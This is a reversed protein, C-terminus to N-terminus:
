DSYFKDQLKIQDIIFIILAELTNQDYKVALKLIVPANQCKGIMEEHFERLRGHFGCLTEISFDLNPLRTQKECIQEQLADIFLKFERERLEWDMSPEWILLPQLQAVESSDSNATERSEESDRTAKQSVAAPVSAQFNPSIRQNISKKKLQSNSSSM